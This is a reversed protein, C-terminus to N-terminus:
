MADDHSAVLWTSNRDPWCRMATQQSRDVVCLDAAAREAEVM